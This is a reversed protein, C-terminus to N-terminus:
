ECGGLLALVAPVMDAVSPEREGEDAFIIQGTRNLNVLGSLAASRLALMLDVQDSFDAYVRALWRDGRIVDDRM